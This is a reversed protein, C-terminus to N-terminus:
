FAMLSAGAGGEAEGEGECGGVAERGGVRVFGQSQYVYVGWGWGRQELGEQGRRARVAATINNPRKYSRREGRFLHPPLLRACRYTHLLHLFSPKLPHISILVCLLHGPSPRFPALDIATFLSGDMEAAGTEDGEAELRFM